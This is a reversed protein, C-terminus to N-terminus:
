YIIFSSFADSSGHDSDTSLQRRLQFGLGSLDNSVVLIRTPQSSLIYCSYAPINGNSPKTFSSSHTAMFTTEMQGSCCDVTKTGYFFPDVDVGSFSVCQFQVIDIEVTQFNSSIAAEKVQAFSDVVDYNFSTLKEITLSQQHLIITSKATM